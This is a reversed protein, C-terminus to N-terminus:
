GGTRPSLVLEAGNITLRLAEDSVAEVTGEMNLALGMKLGATSFRGESNVVLGRRELWPLEFALSAPAGHQGVEYVVDVELEQHLLGEPVGLAVLHDATLAFRARGGSAHQDAPVGDCHGRVTLEGWETSRGKSVAYVAANGSLYLESGSPPTWSGAQGELPFVEGDVALILESLATGAKWSIEEIRRGAYDMRGSRPLLSARIHVSEDWARDMRRAGPLPILTFTTQASGSGECDARSAARDAVLAEGDTSGDNDLIDLHLTGSTHDSPSLHDCIAEQIAPDSVDQYVVEPEGDGDADPTTDQPLDSPFVPPAVYVYATTAALPLAVHTGESEAAPSTPARLTWGEADAGAPNTVLTPQQELEIAGLHVAGMAPVERPAPHDGSQRTATSRYELVSVPVAGGPLAAGDIFCEAMCTWSLPTGTEPEELDSLQDVNYFADFGTCTTVPGAVAPAEGSPESGVPDQAPGRAGECGTGVLCCALTFRILGHM